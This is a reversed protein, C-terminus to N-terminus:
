QKLKNIENIEFLIVTVRKLPKKKKKKFFFSLAPELLSIYM